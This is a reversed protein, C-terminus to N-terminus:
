FLFVFNKIDLCDLKDEININNCDDCNGGIISKNFCKNKQSNCKLCDDLIKKQNELKICSTKDCKEFCQEEYININDDLGIKYLKKKDNNLMINSYTNIDVINTNFNEYNKNRKYIIIIIIIIFFLCLFIINIM